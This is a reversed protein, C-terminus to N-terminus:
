NPPCPATEKPQASRRRVQDQLRAQCLNEACPTEVDDTHVRRCFEKLIAIFHNDVPLQIERRQGPTELLATPVVGEGATFTRFTTLRGRQGIVEIGCQYFQDFGFAIQLPIRIGCSTASLMAGGWIDVHDASDNLCASLVQIDGDMFVQCAKLPYGGADLLAGGGLAQDYRFNGASLPPFCFTARFLRIEGLGDRILQQVVAQQTHYQFMYNEMMVRRHERALAVLGHAEAFSAALSKEVLLHKGARLAKAAWEAHLGTPLPMYVADIDPRDLLDQYDGLHACGFSRAFEEGKEKSRSAIGALRLEPVALIAPIVSRRAINACGMVGIRIPPAAAM